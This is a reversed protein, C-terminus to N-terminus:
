DKKIGRIEISAIKKNGQYGNARLGSRVVAEWSKMPLVMSTHDTFKLVCGEEETQPMDCSIEYFKKRDIAGIDELTKVMRYVTASGISPDEKQAEFIIEKCSSCTGELIIDLIILRQKTVRCGHTHLMEIIQQRRKKV